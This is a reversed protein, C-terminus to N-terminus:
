HDAPQFGDGTTGRRDTDVPPTTLTAGLVRRFAPAFQHQTGHKTGPSLGGRYPTPEAATAGVRSHRLVEFRASETAPLLHIACRCTPASRYFEALGERLRELYGADVLESVIRQAANPSAVREAVDRLGCARTAPSVRLAHAHNTWSRGSPGVFSDIKGGTKTADARPSNRTAVM